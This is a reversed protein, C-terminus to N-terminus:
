PPSHAVPSSAAGNSKRFLASAEPIQAAVQARIEVAKSFAQSEDDGAHYDFALALLGVITGSSDRLPTMVAIKSLASNPVIATRGDTILQVDNPDSPKGILNRTHAIISYRDDRPAKAHIGVWTMTPHAAKIADVLAQAYIKNDASRGPPAAMAAQTWGLVLM